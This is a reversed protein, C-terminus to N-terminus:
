VGSSNRRTIGSQAWLGDHSHCSNTKLTVVLPMQTDVTRFIFTRVAMLAGWAVGLVAARAVVTRKALVETVEGADTWVM